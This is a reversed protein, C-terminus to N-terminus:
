LSYRLKTVGFVIDDSAKPRPSTRAVIRRRRVRTSGVRDRRADEKCLHCGQSDLARRRAHDSTRIARRGARATRHKAITLLLNKEAPVEASPDAADLASTACFFIAFKFLPPATSDLSQSHLLATAAAAAGQSFGVVGDFPGDEDIIDLLYEYCEHV